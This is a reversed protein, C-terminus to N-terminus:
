PADHRRVVDGTRRVRRAVGRASRSPRRPSATSYTEVRDSSEARRKQAGPTAILGGGARLDRRARARRHFRAPLAILFRDSGSKLAAITKM